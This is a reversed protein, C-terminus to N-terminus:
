AQEYTRAVVRPVLSFVVCVRGLNVQVVDVHLLRCGLLEQAM